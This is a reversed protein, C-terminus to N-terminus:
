TKGGSNRSKRGRLRDMFTFKRNGGRSQGCGTDTTSSDSVKRSTEESRNTFVAVPSQKPVEVRLQPMDHNIAYMNRFILLSRRAPDNVCMSELTRLVHLAQEASGPPAVPRKSGNRRRGSETSSDSTFSSPSFQGSSKSEADFIQNMLADNMSCFRGAWYGTPMATHVQRSAILEDVSVSPLEQPSSSLEIRSRSPELPQRKAPVPLSKRKGQLPATPGPADFFAPLPPPASEPVATRGKPGLLPQVPQLLTHCQIVHRTNEKGRHQPLSDIRRPISFQQRPSGGESSSSISPTPVSNSNDDRAELLPKAEEAFKWNNVGFRKQPQPRSLESAKRPAITPLIPQTTSRHIYKPQRGPPTPIRSRFLSATRSQMLAPQKNPSMTAPKTPVPLYSTTSSRVLSPRPQRATFPSSPPSAPNFSNRNSGVLTITSQSAETNNNNGSPQRHRGFGKPRLSTLSKNFMTLSALRNPIKELTSPKPPAKQMNRSVLHQRSQTDHQTQTEWKARVAHYNLM